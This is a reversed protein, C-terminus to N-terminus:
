GEAELFVYFKFFFYVHCFEIIDKRQASTRTAAPSCVYNLMLYKELSDGCSSKKTPDLINAENQVLCKQKGNCKNKLYNSATESADCEFGENLGCTRASARHLCFVFIILISCMFYIKCYDM